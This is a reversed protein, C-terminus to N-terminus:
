WQSAARMQMRSPSFSSGMANFQWSPSVVQALAQTTKPESGRCQPPHPAVQVAGTPALATQTSPFHPKTQAPPRMGQPALQTSAVLSTSFQPPQPLAHSGLGPALVLQSAPAHRLLHRAGYTSHAPFHTSGLVLGAWQPAHPLCQGAPLTQEDPWHRSAQAGPMSLQLAAQTSVARSTCCQPPQLVDQGESKFPMAAQLLPL